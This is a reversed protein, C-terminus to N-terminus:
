HCRAAGGTHLRAAHLTQGFPAMLRSLANQEHSAPVSCQGYFKRLPMDGPAMSTTTRGTTRLLPAPRVHTGFLRLWCTRDPTVVTFGTRGTHRKAWRVGEDAPDAILKFLQARFFATTCLAPNLPM